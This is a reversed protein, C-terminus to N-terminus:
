WEDGYNPVESRRIQKLVAYHMSAYIEEVDEEPLGFSHNYCLGDALDWAMSLAESHSEAQVVDQESQMIDGYEIVFYPM